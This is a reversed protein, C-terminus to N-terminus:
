KPVNLPNEYGVVVGVVSFGYAIEGIFEVNGNIGGFGHVIPHIGVGEQCLLNLFFLEFGDEVVLWKV